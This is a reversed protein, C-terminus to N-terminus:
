GAVANQSFGYSRTCFRGVHRWRSQVADGKGVEGVAVDSVGMDEYGAESGDVRGTSSCSNLAIKEGDIQWHLVKLWEDIYVTGSDACIVGNWYDAIRGENINDGEHSV